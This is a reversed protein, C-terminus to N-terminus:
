ELLKMFNRKRGFRAKLAAIHDAQADSTRLAAMHALLKAAEAYASNSGSDVLRDIRETYVKVAERPHSAESARALAERASMSPVYDHVATWAADFAKDHALIGVLLDAPHRWQTSPQKVLRTRLLAIARGRAGEGGVAVLQVYLELSPSKEFARWLVSGADDSRGAKTLLGATFVVLRVDPQVDEFVWLGEEARRLAEEQRGQSLCFEALQLYNWPSSLDKGRLDIRADVDGDRQAFFDLIDKLANYRGDFLSRDRGSRPPLKAWAELALRRYEALGAEALVDEYVRAADYFTDYEGDMERAFLERALPIPAPRTARAAALHIDRARELLISCQGDSDDIEGIAAEIRDIAHEALELAQAAHGAPTLEDLIDLVDGVGAAWGGVEGYDVFGRTRTASDIAKRVRRTLTTADARTTTAAVDLKRFLAPDREALGVFMEVLIEVGKQRLHERIRSLAGAGEADLDGGAANAALATAVMHKCFGWDEFAPCSCEGAIDEGRGTVKTRYDETGVVQALVWGPEIALIEVQGDRHYAQGRAFVKAGALDRLTDLDFRSRAPRM